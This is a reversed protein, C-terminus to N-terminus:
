KKNQKQQPSSGSGACNKASCQSAVNMAKGGDEGSLNCSGKPCYGAGPTNSIRNQADAAVVGCLLSVSTLLGIFVNRMKLGGPTLLNFAVM